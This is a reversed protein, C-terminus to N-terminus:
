AEVPAIAWSEQSSNLLFADNARVNQLTEAHPLPGVLRV